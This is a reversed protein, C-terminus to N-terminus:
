ASFYLIVAQGSVERGPGQRLNRTSGRVEAHSIKYKLTKEWDTAPTTPTKGLLCQVTFAKHCRPLTDYEAAIPARCMAPEAPSALVATVGNRSPVYRRSYKSNRNEALEEM